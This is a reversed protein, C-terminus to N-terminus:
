CPRSRGDQTIHIHLDPKLAPAIEERATALLVRVSTAQAPATRWRALAACLSLATPTDLTSTFEDAVLLVATTPALEAARQLALALDLRARQGVSLMGVRALVARHDALGASSLCALWAHLDPPGLDAVFAHRSPRAAGARVVACAGKAMARAIACCRTLLRSKGGGSPGTILTLTGPHLHRLLARAHRSAPAPLTPPPRPPAHTVHITSPPPPAPPTPAPASRSPPPTIIRGKATVPLGLLLAAQLHRVSPARDHAPM